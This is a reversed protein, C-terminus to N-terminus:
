FFGNLNMFRCCGDAFDVDIEEEIVWGAWGAYSCKKPLVDHKATRPKKLKM